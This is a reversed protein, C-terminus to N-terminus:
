KDEKGYYFATVPSAARHTSLHWLATGSVGDTGEITWNSPGSEMDDSFVTATSRTRVAVVNSVPSVNGVNDRARLAFFYDTQPKLGTVQFSEATGAPAPKSVGTVATAQDFNSQDIPTTAYPLDYAWATGIVGDDGTATWGLAVKHAGVTGAALDSVPAPPVEDQEMAGVLNLRGGTVTLTALAPIPDVGSLIRDRVQHNDIGPFRSLILAAAGSVHPTAMSTGSLLHYGTPDRCCVNGATPVTSLISVGPAGLHVTKAGFNSFLAIADNQDTAAVSVVNPVDFSAPYSAALDINGGDNGAAAVFLAGAQDATRIADLLAQSFGGGGWSNNLVKAGMSAAYLVASIANSTLGRGASDLFKVAM